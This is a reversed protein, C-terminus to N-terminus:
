LDLRQVSKGLREGLMVLLLPRVIRDVIGRFEIVSIQAADEGVVRPAAVRRRGGGKEAAVARLDPLHDCFPRALVLQSQIRHEIIHDDTAALQLQTSDTGLSLQSHVENNEQRGLRHM